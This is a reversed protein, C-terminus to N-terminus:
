TKKLERNLYHLWYHLNGNYEFTNVEKFGVKKLVQRSASNRTDAFAFIESLKLKKFGYDLSARAAETAYGKGWHAKLFRYGLDYYNQHGNIVQDNIFKLGSWGVFENTKKEIVAWRGIGNTAYQQLIYDTTKQAQELTTIPANGVYAQVEPDSDLRFIYMVDSPIIERLILRDTEVLQLM